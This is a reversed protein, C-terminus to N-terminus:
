PPDEIKSKYLEILLESCDIGAAEFVIKLTEIKVYTSSGPNFYIGEGVKFCYDSEKRSFYRGPFDSGEPVFKHFVVPDLEYVMSLVGCIMDVWTKATFRSGMFSYAAIQRGTFSFDDDLAHEEYADNGWEFDSEISPWLELFKRKMLENRAKLQEEGWAEQQCVFGNIRFGSQKFGNEMDRKKVFRRNSYKSNYATLTLNAMSNLWRAQIEAFDDGLDQQWSTSLAQPMIHEISFSEDRLNDVGNVRELSDGNELRDFLYYKYGAIRYFDREEFAQMFEADDPFHGSGEKSLLVKNLVDPYSGGDKVGRLVESHLTEFVIAGSFHRWTARRTSFCM